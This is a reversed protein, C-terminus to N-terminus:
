HVQKAQEYYVSKYAIWSYEEASIRQYIREFRAEDSTRLYNCGHRIFDAYFDMMPNDCVAKLLLSTDPVKDDMSRTEAAVLFM